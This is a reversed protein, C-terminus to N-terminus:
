FSFFFGMSMWFQHRTGEMLFRSARYEPGVEVRLTDSFLFGIWAAIRTEMEATDHQIKGLYENYIRLYPEGQDTSSGNLPIEASFRYRLRFEPSEDARFTQDATIRHALRVPGYGGGFTYQQIFRHAQEEDELRVLYGTGVTSRSGTKRVIVANLDTREYAFGGVQDGAERQSFILRAEAKATLKWQANIPLSLNLHPILGTTLDAQAQLSLISSLFCITLLCRSLM